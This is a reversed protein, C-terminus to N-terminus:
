ALHVLAWLSVDCLAGLTFQAGLNDAAVTITTGTNGIRAEVLKFPALFGLEAFVPGNAGQQAWGTPLSYTTYGAATATCSTSRLHVIGLPGLQAYWASVSSATINGLTPTYSVMGGLQMTYTADADRARLSVPADDRMWISGNAPTAPDTTQHPIRGWRGIVTSTLAALDTRLNRVVVTLDPDRQNPVTM